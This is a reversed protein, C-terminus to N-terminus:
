FGLVHEVINSCKQPDIMQGAIHLATRPAMRTFAVDRRLYCKEMHHCYEIANDQSAYPGLMLLGCGVSALYSATRQPDHFQARDMVVCMGPRLGPMLFTVLWWEFLDRTTSGAPLPLTM